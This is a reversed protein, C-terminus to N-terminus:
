HGACEIRTGNRGHSHHSPHTPVVHALSVACCEAM